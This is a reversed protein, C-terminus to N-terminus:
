DNMRITATLISTIVKLRNQKLILKHATHTPLAITPIVGDSFAKKMRELDFKNVPHLKSSPIFCFSPNELVNFHIVIAFPSM